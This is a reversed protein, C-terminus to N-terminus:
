DNKIKSCIRSSVATRITSNKELKSVSCIYTVKSADIRRIYIEFNVSSLYNLKIVNHSTAFAIPNFDKDFVAIEYFQVDKRKNFLSMTTKVVGDLHSHVLKPYTPTMEHAYATQGTGVISVAVVFAFVFLNMMLFDKIKRYM